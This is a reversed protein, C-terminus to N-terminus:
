EGEWWNSNGGGPGRATAYEPAHQGGGGGPSQSEFQGGQLPLGLSRTFVGPLPLSTVARRGLPAETMEPPEQQVHPPTMYPDGASRLGLGATMGGLAPDLYSMAHHTYAKPPQAMEPAMTVPPPATTPNLYPDSSNYAQPPAIGPNAYAHPLSYPQPPATVQNPYPNTVYAQPPMMIPSPYSSSIDYTETTDGASSSTADSSGSSGSSTSASHETDRESVSRSIPAPRITRLEKRMRSGPGKKYMQIEKLPGTQARCCTYWILVLALAVGLCVGLAILGAPQPEDPSSRAKLNWSVLTPPHHSLPYIFTM